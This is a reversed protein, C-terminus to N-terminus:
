VADSRFNTSHMHREKLAAYCFDCVVTMGNFERFAPTLERERLFLQECEDCWAQLDSPDDNNEIFGVSCEKAQIMHRCVVAAVRNGHTGCKITFTQDDSM